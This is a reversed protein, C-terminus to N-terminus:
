YFMWDKQKNYHNILGSNRRPLYYNDMITNFVKEALKYNLLQYIRAKIKKNNWYEEKRQELVFNLAKFLPPTNRYFHLFTNKFGLCNYKLYKENYLIRYTNKTEKMDINELMINTNSGDKFIVKYSLLDDYDLDNFVSYVLRAINFCKNGFEKDYLYVLRMTGPKGNLKKYTNKKTNYVRGYNSIEYNPFNEIDRWEEM